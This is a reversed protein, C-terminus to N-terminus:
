SAPTWAHEVGSGMVTELGDWVGIEVTIVGTVSM